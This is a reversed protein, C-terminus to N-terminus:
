RDRRREEWLNIAAHAEEVQRELHRRLPDEFHELYCTLAREAALLVRNLEASVPDVGAEGEHMSLLDAIAQDMDEQAPPLLPPEDETSEITALPVTYTPMERKGRVLRWVRPETHKTPEVALEAEGRAKLHKLSDGIQKVDRGLAEAMERVTATDHAVLYGVVQHVLGTVVGPNGEDRRYPHGPRYTKGAALDSAAPSPGAQYDSM